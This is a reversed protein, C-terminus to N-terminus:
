GEVMGYAEGATLEALPAAVVVDGEALGMVEITRGRDWEAVVEVGVRSLVGDALKLVYHGEADERLAAAPVALADAKEAVVIYGTAFMGGRLVGEANDLEIYIPVTRTGSQAVPNVRMVTGPFVRDGLGTVTVNVAQGPAVRASNNVSAAADFEMQELNVVSFLPTGASVSQGPEVSRASVIGSLPSKVTANSLALEASQVASKLAELNAELAANSSRAQELASPSTLGQQALQETRELQQQSSQLQARTAEATARQQNLQLELTARDIQALVDGENVRDGPRVMVAIVRGSAQSAVESQKGPELTGTVKVSETLLTPAISATESRRIQMVLPAAEAAEEVPSAPRFLAFGILGLVILGLVVWILIRRKPKLGQAIRRANEQERKSQAWEPKDHSTSM